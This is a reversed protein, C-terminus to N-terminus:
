ESRQFTCLLILYMAIREEIAVHAVIDDPDYHQNEHVFQLQYAISQRKRTPIEETQEQLKEGAALVNQLPGNDELYALAADVFPYCAEVSSLYPQKKKSTQIHQITQSLEKKM